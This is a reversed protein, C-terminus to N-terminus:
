MEFDAVLHGWNRMGLRIREGAPVDRGNVFEFEDFSANPNRGVMFSDYSKMRHLETTERVFSGKRDLSRGFVSSLQEPSKSYACHCRFTGGDFDPGKEVFDNQEFIRRPSTSRPSATVIGPSATDRYCEEIGWRTSTTSFETNGSDQGDSHDYIDPIIPPIHREGHEASSPSM